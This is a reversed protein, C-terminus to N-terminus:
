AAASPRLRLTVGPMRRMARIGWAVCVAITLVTLGGSFLRSLLGLDLSIHLMGLSMGADLVRSVGWVIAVQTFLRRMGKHHFLQAPLAVFDRALRMTVPKGIAASGLFLLAMLISGFVPQVVYVLASSLVLALGARGCLMGACLLLTGPLPYGRIWRVGITLACWGIVSILGWMLGATHMVAFLLLTPVAVSEIFMRAGRVIQPRLRGLEIVVNDHLREHRKDHVLETM